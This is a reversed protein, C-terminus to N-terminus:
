AAPAADGELLDMPQGDDAEDPGHAPPPAADPLGEVLLQSDSHLVLQHLPVNAPLDQQAELTWGLTNPGLEPTASVTLRSIVNAHHDMLNFFHFADDAEDLLRIAVSEDPVLDLDVLAGQAIVTEPEENGEADTYAVALASEAQPWYLTWVTPSDNHFEV